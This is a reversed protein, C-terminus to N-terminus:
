GKKEPAPIKYPKKAVPKKDQPKPQSESGQPTTCSVKAGLATLEEIDKDEIEFPKHPAHFVGGYKVTHSCECIAM